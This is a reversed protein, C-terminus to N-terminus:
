MEYFVGDMELYEPLPCTNHTGEVHISGRLKEADLGRLPLPPVM